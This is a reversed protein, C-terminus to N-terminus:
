FLFIISMFKQIFYLFHQASREDKKNKAIKLFMIDNFFYLKNKDQIM